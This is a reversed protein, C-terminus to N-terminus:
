ASGSRHTKHTLTDIKLCCSPRVVFAHSSTIPRMLTTGSSGSASSGDNALTSTLCDGAADGSGCRVANVAIAFSKALAVDSGSEASAMVSIALGVEASAYSALWYSSIASASPAVSSQDGYR